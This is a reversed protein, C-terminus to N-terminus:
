VAPASRSVRLRDILVYVTPIIVLTLATSAVLGTIVAIAMPTRIEAGDGLGVAMPLLGLVTTAATMLIPRLRVTGATVVAEDRSLGRRRLTNVYDVLVIANNVVIGALMIMGLFVVISLPISLAWLALFTGFFALPITVMIVLPHLLSEFQAAMIVYVLFVSLGLALWLSSKSREWEQNQGSLFFTMGSPLDVKSRLEEEIKEVVSALVGGALNARILAVRRGDIRRVESPGEGLEVDAVASLRIPRGVGNGSARTDSAPAPDGFATFGDAVGEGPNVVLDRVDEVSARDEEAFRVLIPIRRDRLNYRTAENGQISNRVLEAVRAIDLDYRALLDRDYVIQVEPAGQKLTSEVDALEPLAAMVEAIRAAWRKLEGLDEGHLEVEVPTRFSFLVPRAIRTEVDPIEAFRRRLRAIVQEELVPDSRELLVKFRGTHEGEDSRQSNAADYGLTVLLSRIHQREALIADEVPSLIRDTEELPTGVPLAVEVTFEGQHVEPLLESPLRSGLWATAAFLALALTAVLGPRALSARLLRPYSRQLADLGAGAVAMLPRTVLGFVARLVPWLVRSLLATALFLVGGLALGVVELVAQVLFRAALYVAFVLWPLFRLVPSARLWAVAGRM